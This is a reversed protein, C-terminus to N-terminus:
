PTMHMYELLEWALARARHRPMGVGVAGVEVNELVTLGSFIRVSQFTRAIGRRTRESPSLRTVVADDLRVSGRSPRQFGSMINVLTTKGAGNPGILGLVEGRPLRLDVQQLAALGEFHMEVGQAALVNADRAHGVRFPSKM